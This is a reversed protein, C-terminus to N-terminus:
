FTAVGRKSVVLSSIENAFEISQPINKTELYKVAFAAVFTDGAGSVDITEKPSPSPYKIGKYIAGESGMTIIIKELIETDQTFNNKFENENLKTFTFSKLVKDSLKRKTDLISLISNSGILELDSDTLFGKNYDSVIVCDFNKLNDFFFDDTKIQKVDKEFEDVRIFPHNSKEEVYRTKVIKSKQHLSSVKYNKKDTLSKLNRVVNGAMGDNTIKKEPLFVPIPAEPSLRDVRGYIFIDDCKEGIVLIKKM